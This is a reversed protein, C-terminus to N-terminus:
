RILIVTGKRFFTRGTYDTVKVMWIYTGQPQPKGAFSGDWGFSHTSPSNYVIQGWRNHVKFIEVNQIGAAVFRFYDNHGDSNPTFATPVYIEPQTSFVKVQIYASDKCGAEDSIVVKYRHYGESPSRSFRAVPNSINDASLGTPPSWVYNIGGSAQLQLPQNIVVTTDRGAFALIDPNVFVVVTDVGPKPCGKTDYAFLVYATSSVPKALPNLTNPNDLLAAPSWAFSSGDTSAHLQANTNHCITTDPGANALPYPVTTVTLRDTAVCSSISATVEYETTSSPTALPNRASPDDLSGAPTWSFKLADTELDLKIDDGLCIVPNDPINLSVRDVVRVRVSDNNICGDANLEVYYTTSTVPTVVPTATGSGNMNQVPSWTYSGSGLAQLQLNDPPCVLTDRYALEIPPKDFISVTQAVTDRCGLTNEVILSVDKNGTTAFLYTPNQELSNDSSESSEGFDWSWSNITGLVSTTADKFSTPKTICPSSFDFDPKFGPYVRVIADTSDSCQQDRNIFLKITYTGTDAFSYTANTDSSSFITSGNNDLFEWNFTHVLPSSSLNSATLTTTNDCLMYEEQLQAATITCPAINIQLDKRQTAIVIGNRIEEVCVTIVYIGRQPAIGTILGTESDIKVKDGLPSTGTFGNGYPVSVYPPSPPPMVNTGYGGDGTTRYANCFSYRLQDGDIDVAAFSYSFFNDGCVIVLDEGSFHASNNVSKGDISSPIEGTYTAGVRDYSGGLNTIGDIRFMVHATLTYGSATGPLSARFRYFAVEYCVTPPNTICPDTNVMSLTENSAIRVSYDDIRVGSARDFISIITPNSFIRGSHCRMFLRVTVDYEYYGNTKGVYTYFVEGGTIHDASARSICGLIILVTLLVRNM